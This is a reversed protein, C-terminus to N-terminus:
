EVAGAPTEIDDILIDEADADLVIGSDEAVYQRQEAAADADNKMMICYFVGAAAIFVLAAAYVVGIWKKGSKKM